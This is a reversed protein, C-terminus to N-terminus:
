KELGKARFEFKFSKATMEDGAVDGDHEGHRHHGHWQEDLSHRRTVRRKLGRRTRRIGVILPPAHEGNNCPQQHPAM